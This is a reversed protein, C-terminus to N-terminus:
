PLLYGLKRIQSIIRLLSIIVVLIVAGVTASVLTATLGSGVTVGLEAFIYKGVFAGLIGVIINVILGFGGGRVVLSALWGVVAGLALIILISELEM